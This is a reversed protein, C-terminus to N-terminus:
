PYRRRLPRTSSMSFDKEEKTEVPILLQIMSAQQTFAMQAKNYSGKDFWARAAAGYLLTEHWEEPIGPGADAINGLSKRYFINVTYTAQPIVDFTIYENYRAYKRPITQTVNTSDADDMLNAYDTQIVPMSITGANPTDIITVRRIADFDGVYSEFLYFNVGSATSFSFIQDTEKFKLTKTLQWYARNLFSRIKPRSIDDENMGIMDYVDNELEILSLGM